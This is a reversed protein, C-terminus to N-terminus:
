KQITNVFLIGPKIDEFYVTPIVPESQIAVENNQNIEGDNQDIEEAESSSLEHFSNVEEMLERYMHDINFDM